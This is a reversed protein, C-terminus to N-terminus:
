YRLNSARQRIRNLEEPDYNQSVYNPDYTSTIDDAYRLANRNKIFEDQEPGTPVIPQRKPATITQQTVGPVQKRQLDEMFSTGLGYKAEEESQPIRMQANPNSGQTSLPTQGSGQYQPNQPTVRNAGFPTNGRVNTPRGTTAEPTVRNEGFGRGGRVNRRRGSSGVKKPNYMDKMFGTDVDYDVVDSGFGTGFMGSKSYERMADEFRDQEQNMELLLMDARKQDRPDTSSAYRDYLKQNRDMRRNFSDTADARQKDMRDQGFQAIGLGTSALGQLNEQTIGSGFLGRRRINEAERTNEAELKSQLARALNAYAGRRGSGASYDIAM